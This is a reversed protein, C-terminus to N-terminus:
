MDRNEVSTAVHWMVMLKKHQNPMDRRSEQIRIRKKNKNKDLQLISKPNHLKRKHKQGVIKKRTNQNM